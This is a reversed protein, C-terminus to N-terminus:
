LFGDAPFLWSLRAIAEFRSEFIPTTAAFLTTGLLWAKGIAYTATTSASFSLTQGRVPRDLVDTELDVSLGLGVPLTHRAGVRVQSYGNSRLQLRHAQLTLTTSPARFPRVAVRGSADFGLDGDLWVARADGFVSVVRSLQWTVSVGVDDRATDAFVSFISTRALFLEPATRRYNLQVELEETPTWRPGVDLEALKTESVSWVFAGAFMLWDLPKWRADFGADQRSLAGAQLMHIFSVGVETNYSPAFYARAGVVFDGRLFNAFRREVPIGTFASLGLGLSTKYDGYLGDFFMARAVGGTVFQRGLRLQLRKKM